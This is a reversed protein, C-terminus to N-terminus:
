EEGKLEDIAAKGEDSELWAPFAAPDGGAEAYALLALNLTDADM